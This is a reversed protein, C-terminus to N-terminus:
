DRAFKYINQGDVGVVTFYVEGQEDEGFSLMPLNNGGLPHNGLVKNADSDYKLAWLKGSVYDGYLYMGDLEPLDKGRYVNGGTISKGIDHHYEWIPDIMGAPTPTDPRQPQDKPTFLHKGERDKWGYNGGKTVINIEEWLDQGVDAAWLQGTKRDFSHRWINRVGYAWIEGRANPRNAFPNDAPISYNTKGDAAPHHVDIRLIKGLLTNLNQGNGMPDGGAGGDGLGVYLYGDPGFALTGGNHNWFPQPIRLLELETKPDVYDPNDKSVTFRSIVSLHPAATSTYYVYLHGNTKYNPDFAMGLFGEENQKDDYVVRDTIDLFIRTNQPGSANDFVHITGQESPVFIRNSGDGANTLLIPRFPRILGDDTESKWGTWKLEPFALKSHVPLPKTDVKPSPAAGPLLSCTGLVGFLVLHRINKM